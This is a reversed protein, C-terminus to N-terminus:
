ALNYRTYELKPNIRGAVGPGLFVRELASVVLSCIFSSPGTECGLVLM